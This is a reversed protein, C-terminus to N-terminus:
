IMRPHIDELLAPIGNIGGHSYPSRVPPLADVPWSIQATTTKHQDARFDRDGSNDIEAFHCGGFRGAIHEKSSWPLGSLM